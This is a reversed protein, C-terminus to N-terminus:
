RFMNKSYGKDNSYKDARHQVDIYSAPSSDSLKEEPFIPLEKFHVVPSSLRLYYESTLTSILFFDQDQLLREPISPNRGFVSSKDEDVGVSHVPFCSFKPSDM